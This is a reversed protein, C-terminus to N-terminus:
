LVQWFGAAWKRRVVRSPLLSERQESLGCSRNMTTTPFHRSQPRYAGLLDFDFSFLRGNLSEEPKSKWGVALRQDRVGSDVKKGFIFLTGAWREKCEPDVLAAM